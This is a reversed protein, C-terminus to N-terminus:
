EQSCKVADIALTVLLASLADNPNQVDITYTDTWNFLEKQITAVVFNGYVIQYDWQFFDGEVQWDNFDISFSPRFLSFEKVIQGVYNDGIYIEFKPLFTLVKENLTAIHDGNANYIELRHGWALKGKVTFVTNGMEDYIDYSDFWSFMRQKFLLKM